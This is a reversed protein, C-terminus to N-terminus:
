AARKMQYKRAQVVPKAASQREVDRAIAWVFGMLERAVATTIKNRPKNASDMRKYRAHLRQEAKEAITVASAEISQRRKKIEASASPKHRYLWASETLVRRLHANGSKTIGQRRSKGPGGSSHESPVLGAWAMLQTPKKFRSFDGVEIAVLAATTQAVGRLAQLAVVTERLRQPATAVAAAIQNDLRGLRTNHHVAEAKYDDFTQQTGVQEFTITELWQMYKTGFAKVRAKGANKGKTTKPAYLGERLLLKEVRQQARRRDRRCAERARVLNRLAEHASDPVWVATLEGARLLRALKEADKRDTKVRDGVKQPILSPAVVTCEAGLEVLAWYLAYGCPGAEYCLKMKGVDGVKKLLKRLAAMDNAVNGLSRVEGGSAPAVAVTISNAHVDLGVYHSYKM